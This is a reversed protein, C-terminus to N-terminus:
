RPTGLSKESYKERKQQKYFKRKNDHRAREFLTRGSAVKKRAKSFSKIKIRSIRRTRNKSLQCFGYVM